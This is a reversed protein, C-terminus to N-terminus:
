KAGRYDIYQTFAVTGIFSILAMVSIGNLYYEYGTYFAYLLIIGMVFVAFLDIAVVRDAPTPGKALRLLTLIMGTILLFSSIYIAIQIILSSNQLM